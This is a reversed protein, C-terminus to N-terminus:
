GWTEEVIRGEKELTEWWAEAKQDVRRKEEENEKDSGEGEGESQNQIFVQLFAKKVSKPMNTSSGCIYISGRHQHIWDWILASQSPILHQVYIKDEQDRSAATILKLFGQDRMQSFEAQFHFDNALSRCGFFLMNDKAGERIREEMLARFPAVGTGPGVMILPRGRKVPSRLLGSRDFRVWMKEGVERGALWSTCVGKRPTSMNTKYKVIAILLEVHGQHAEPTSAISFARPRLPPLLDLIYEIPVKASRFEYMVENITRRPRLTYDNLDDQGEGTCFFQLKEKMDGESFHALWEFFSLRPVGSIDLEYTLLYHLTTIFPQPFHSPLPRNENYAELRFPQHALETWGASSLFRDVDEPSNQPRIELVDGASYRIAEDDWKSLEDKVFEVEFKRVDQFWDEPTTRKIEVVKAWRADNAWSLAEKSVAHEHNPNVKTLRIRPPPVDDISLPKFHPAPAFLPDIAQYFRELWSPFTSEVGWLNQDDAEGREVVATAGLNDLRRSLKKGAWNYKAYSSDGLAFVAYRLDQLFDRPLEPHLLSTWLPLFCPPTAGNGTTPVVFVILGLELLETKEFQSVHKVSTHWGARVGRRAIREAVDSATGTVTAHVVWLSRSELPLPAHEPVLHSTLAVNM